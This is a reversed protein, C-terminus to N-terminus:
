KRHYGGIADNVVKYPNPTPTPTPTSTPQTDYVPHPIGPPLADPGTPHKKMDEQKDIYKHRDEEPWDNPPPTWPDPPDRYGSDKGSKGSGGGKSKGKGKGKANAAAAAGAAAGGVGAATCGADQGCVNEGVDRLVPIRLWRGTDLLLLSAGVALLGLVAFSAVNSHRSKRPSPGLGRSRPIREGQPDEFGREHKNM